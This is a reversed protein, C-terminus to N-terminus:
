SSEQGTVADVAEIEGGVGRAFWSAPQSHRGGQGGLELELDWLGTSM